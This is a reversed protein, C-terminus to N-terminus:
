TSCIVLLDASWIGLLDASWIGLLDASWIMLQDASRGSKTRRSRGRKVCAPEQTRVTPPPALAVTKGLRCGRPTPLLRPAAGRSGPGALRLTPLQSCSPGAVGGRVPGSRPFRSPTESLPLVHLTKVSPCGNLRCGPAADSVLGEICRCHRHISTHGGGGGATAKPCWPSLPVAGHTGQSWLSWPSFTDVWSSGTQATTTAALVPALEYANVVGQIDGPLRCRCLGGAVPCSSEWM